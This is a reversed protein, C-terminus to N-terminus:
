RPPGANNLPWYRFVAHGLVSDLPIPGFYRSDRSNNRNDGMVFINLPPVIWSRSAGETDQALYPEDLLKGDIYVKGQAVTVREGPLGVVRKILPIPGGGPDKLVVVDRRQPTRFHYTVKEIILRQDTFFNPEMSQGYVITSQALFLHMLVAIALAPLLTSLVDRLLGGAQSVWRAKAPMPLEPIGDSQQEM